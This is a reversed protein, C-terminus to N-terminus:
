KPQHGLDKIQSGFLTVGLDLSKSSWYKSFSTQKDTDTLTEILDKQVLPDIIKKLCGPQKGGPHKM